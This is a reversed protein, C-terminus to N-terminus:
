LPDEEDDIELSDEQRDLLGLDTLASEKIAEVLSNAQELTAADTVLSQGGAMQGSFEDTTLLVVYTVKVQGGSIIVEQIDLDLELKRSM